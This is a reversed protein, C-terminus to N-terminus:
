EAIGTSNQAWAVQFGGADATYTGDIDVFGIDIVATDWGASKVKNWELKLRAANWAAENAALGTANVTLNASTKTFTGGQDSGAHTRITVANTYATTEDSAFIQATISLTDDSLTGEDSYSYNLTLPTDMSAFDTNVSTLTFFVSCPTANYLGNVWTTGDPSGDSARDDVSLYLNTTGGAQNETSTITGDGAPYLTDLTAM